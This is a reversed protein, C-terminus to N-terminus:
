SSSEMRGVDVRDPVFRPYLRGAREPRNEGYFVGPVLWRPEDAPDLRLEVRIGADVPEDATCTVTISADEGDHWQTWGFDFAPEVTGDPRLASATLPLREVLV